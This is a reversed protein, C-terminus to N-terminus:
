KSVSIAIGTSVAALAFVTLQAAMGSLEYRKTIFIGLASGIAIGIALPKNM